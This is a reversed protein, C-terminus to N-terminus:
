LVVNHIDIDYRQTLKGAFSRAVCYLQMLIGLAIHVATWLVLVWVIAPYSHQTPDLESVYPAYLLASAGLLALAAGASLAARLGGPSGAANFLRAAFMTGWAALVAAAALSPWVLGPGEMGAPPFEEHVTWFFFYGFVLS